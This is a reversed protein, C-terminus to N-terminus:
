GNDPALADPYRKHLIQNLQEVLDQRLLYAHCNGNKFMRVRLYSDEYDVGERRAEALKKYLGERHDPEPKGELICFARV